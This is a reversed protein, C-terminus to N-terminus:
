KGQPSQDRDILEDSSDQKGSGVFGSQDEGRQDLSEGTDTESDQRQQAMTDGSEESGAQGSESQQSQGFEAERNEGTEDKRDFNPQQASQSKSLDGTEGQNKDQNERNEM